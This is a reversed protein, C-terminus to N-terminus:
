KEKAPVPSVKCNAKNLNNILKKFAFVLLDLNKAALSQHSEYVTLHYKM